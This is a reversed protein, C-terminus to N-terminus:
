LEESEDKDGHPQATGHPKKSLWLKDACDKKSVTRNKKELWQKDLVLLLAPDPVPKVPHQRYMAAFFSAEEIFDHAQKSLSTPEAPDPMCRNGIFNSMPCTIM